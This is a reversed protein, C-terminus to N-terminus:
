ESETRWSAPDDVPKPLRGELWDAVTGPKMEELRGEIVWSLFDRPGGNLYPPPAVPKFVTPLRENLSLENLVHAFEHVVSWSLPHDIDIKFKVWWLGNDFMGTGIGRSPTDNHVVAPVKFLYSLLKGFRPHHGTESLM